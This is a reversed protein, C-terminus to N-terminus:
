NASGSWEYGCKPCKYETEIDDDYGPFDDPAEPLNDLISSAIAELMDSDVSIPLEDLGRLLEVYNSDWMRAMDFGDLDGGSMVLNNSDTLYAFAESRSRADVGVTLPMVWAGTDKEVAIGRPVGKGDREMVALAEIRGNGAKIGGVTGDYKAVEQFGYRSISSILAGLDHRKPNEKLILKEADQVRVWVQRPEDAQDIEINEKELGTVDM